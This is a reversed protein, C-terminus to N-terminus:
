ELQKRKRMRQAIQKEVDLTFEPYTVGGHERMVSVKTVHGNKDICTTEVDGSPFHRYIRKEILKHRKNYIERWSLEVGEVKDKIKRANFRVIEETYYQIDTFLCDFVRANGTFNLDTYAKRLRKDAIKKDIYSFGQKRMVTGLSKLVDKEFKTQPKYPGFEIYNKKRDYEMYCIDRTYLPLLLSSWIEVFFIKGGCKSALKVDWDLPNKVGENLITRFNYSADGIDDHLPQNKKKKREKTPLEMWELTRDSLIWSSNVPQGSHEHLQTAIEDSRECSIGHEVLTELLISKDKEFLRNIEARITSEKM